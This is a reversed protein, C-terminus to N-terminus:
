KFTFQSLKFICIYIRSTFCDSFFFLPISLLNLPSLIINLFVWGFLYCFLFFFCYCCFGQFLYFVYFLISRFDCFGSNFDSSQLRPRALLVRAAEINRDIYPSSILESASLSYVRWYTSGTILFLHSSILSTIHNHHYIDLPFIRLPFGFAKKNSCIFASFIFPSFNQLRKNKRLVGTGEKASYIKM